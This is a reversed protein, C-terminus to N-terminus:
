PTEPGHVHCHWVLLHREDDDLHSELSLNNPFAVRHNVCLWRGNDADCKPGVTQDGLELGELAHMVRQPERSM